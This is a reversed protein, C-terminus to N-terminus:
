KGNPRWVCFSDTNDAIEVVPVAPKEGHSPHASGPDPLEKHGPQFCAGKVFIFDFGGTSIQPYLGVRICEGHLQPRFRGGYHPVQAAIFPMIVLPHGVPTLSVKALFRHNDVLDMKAGPHTHGFLSVPPERISLQGGPQNFVDLLEPEGMHFKQRYGFMRKIGGPAILDCAVISGRAAEPGGVIEFIEHVPAVLLANPNNHVPHRGMERFVIVAQPQKVATGKVLVTIGTLALMCLPPGKHKVKASVLHTIKEQGIGQEPQVLVM